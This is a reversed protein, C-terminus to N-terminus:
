LLKLNFLFFSFCINEAGSACDRGRLVKIEGRKYTNTSNIAVHLASPRIRNACKRLTYGRRACLQICCSEGVQRLKCIVINRATSRTGPSGVILM